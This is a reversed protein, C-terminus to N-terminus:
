YPSMGVYNGPPSYDCVSYDWDPFKAGFPSNTTCHVKACGVGTTTSWVIQTYHGCEDGAACTNTAHDYNTEEGVWSAVAGAVTQTPAGSAINEGLGGKGGMSDYQASANPNHMFMCESAYALAVQAAIPDWQLPMEGVAARAQNMPDLWADEAAAQGSDGGSDAAGTGSSGGGSAGGGGDAGTGSSSAGSSGSSGTSGGEGESGGSSSQSAADASTGTTPSSSSCGPTLGLMVLAPALSALGFTLSRPKM